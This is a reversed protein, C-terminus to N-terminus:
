PRRVECKLNPHDWIQLRLVKVLSNQGDAAPVDYHHVAITGLNLREAMGLCSPGHFALTVQSAKGTDPSALVGVSQEFLCGEATHPFHLYSSMALNLDFGGEHLDTEFNTWELELQVELREKAQWYTCSQGGGPLLRMQAEIFDPRETAHASSMALGLVGACVLGIRQLLNSKAM